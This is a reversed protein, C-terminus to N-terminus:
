VDMMNPTSMLYKKSASMDRPMVPQVGDLVIKFPNQKEIISICVATILCIQVKLKITVGQVM